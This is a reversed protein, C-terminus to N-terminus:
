KTTPKIKDFFREGMSLTDGTILTCEPHNKKFRTIGEETVPTGSVDLHVLLKKASLVPLIEDTVSTASLDLYTLKELSSVVASIANTVKPNKALVLTELNTLPELCSLDRDSVQSQELSLHHLETPLAVHTLAEGTVRTARLDLIELRAMGALIGMGEDTIDAGALRLSVLETLNKLSAAQEDNIGTKNLNLGTLSECIPIMQAIEEGKVKTGMSLDVQLIRCTDRPLEEITLLSGESHVARGGQSLVWKGVIRQLDPEDHGIKCGPLALTLEEIGADTIRTGDIQLETLGSLRQLSELCGDTIGSNSLSLWTLKPFANLHVLDEDVVPTRALSLRSLEPLSRLEKLGDGTVAVGALYLETLSQFRAIELLGQTTIKTDALSLQALQPCGLLHVLGKDSVKCGKLYLSSLGPLNKLVLLDLDGVNPQNELNVSALTLDGKPLEKSEKLDRFEEGDSMVVTVSGSLGLMWETAARDGSKRHQIKCDPLGAALKTLTEESLPLSGLAIIKLTKLAILSQTGLNSIGTGALDLNELRTLGMLEALQEDGFTPNESVDFGTVFFPEQPLDSKNEVTEIAEGSATVLSIQARFESDLFLNAVRRELDQGDWTITVSPLAESMAQYGTATVRTGNVVIKKLETLGTLALLGEDGVQTDSLNLRQLQKLQDLGKIGQDTIQTERLDLELLQPLGLVIKLGEDTIATKSIDLSQLRPFRSLVSIGNDTVPTRSLSLEQLGQIESFTLLDEDGLSAGILRIGQWTFPADPVDALSLLSKPAGGESSAVMVEGGHLFILNLLKKEPDQANEEPSESSAADNKEVTKKVLDVLSEAKLSVTLRSPNSLSADFSQEFPDFGPKSIKLTHSGPAVEYTLSKDPDSGTVGLKEGDLFVGSEAQDVTLILSAFRAVLEPNTGPDDNKFVGLIVSVLIALVVVTGSGVLLRKKNKKKLPSVSSAFSRASHTSSIGSSSGSGSDLQIGIDELRLEERDYSLLFPELSAIVEDMSAPRDDPDKAVMRKWIKQLPKPIDSREQTLNPIKGQQHWLLKQAMSGEPLMSKGMLLFYLTCGLSYIDARQDVRRASLAQEPAMYDVTGMVNGSRTLTADEGADLLQALGMDLVHLVGDKHVVLNSPKVDRHIIGQGHAYGIGRATQLILQVAVPVSVPGAKKVYGSLNPGDVFEMVLFHTGGSEDADFAAAINTHILKAAAEVERHFRNLAEPYKLLHPPLVKLAVKRNMRRHVAAYVIGMGGEGLKEQIVYNGLVLGKSLGDLLVKAQFNTLHQKEVLSDALEEATLSPTSGSKQLFEEYEEPSLLGSKSLCVSFEEFTRPPTPKIEDSRGSRTRGSADDAYADSITEDPVFRTPENRPDPQDDTM